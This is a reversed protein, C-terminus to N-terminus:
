YDYGFDKRMQEINPIQKTNEVCEKEKKTLKFYCITDTDSFYVPEGNEDVYEKLKLMANAFSEAWAINFSDQLSLRAEESDDISFWHGDDEQLFYIFRSICVIAGCAWTSIATCDDYRIVAPKSGCFIDYNESQQNYNDNLWDIIEKLKEKVVM